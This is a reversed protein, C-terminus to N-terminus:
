FEKATKKNFILFNFLELFNLLSIIRCDSETVDEEGFFQWAGDEEDHSVYLIPSQLELVYKTTFVAVNLNDSFKKNM